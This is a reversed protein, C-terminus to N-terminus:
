IICNKTICRSSCVNQGLKIEKNEIWKTWQHRQQMLQFQAISQEWCEKLLAPDPSHM